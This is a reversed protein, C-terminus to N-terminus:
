FAMESCGRAHCLVIQINLMSAETLRFHTVPMNQLVSKLSLINNIEKEM